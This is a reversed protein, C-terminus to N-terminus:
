AAKAPDVVRSLFGGFAGRSSGGVRRVRGELGFYIKPSLEGEIRAIELGAVRVSVFRGSADTTMTLRDVADDLLSRLLERHRSILAENPRHPVLRTAVDGATELNVRVPRESGGNWEFLELQVARHNIAAARQANLEVTERPLYIRLRPVMTKASCNRLWDLWILGFTLSADITAATEAPQSVAAAAVSSNRSSFWPWGGTM